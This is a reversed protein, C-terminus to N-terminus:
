LMDVIDILVKLNIKRENYLEPDSYATDHNETSFINSDPHLIELTDIYDDVLECYFPPFSNDLLDYKHIHRTYIIKDM